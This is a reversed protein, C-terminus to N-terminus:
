PMIGIQKLFAALNWYDSNRQIRKERLEFVTSGRVSFPKGTAPLDPLDGKHTGSMTWEACAWNGSIFGSSMEIKFDPFAAFIGEAFGKLEAKGHHVAGLAVDEYVCDDTFLSNLKDIDHVSWAVAWEELMGEAQFIKMKGEKRHESEM